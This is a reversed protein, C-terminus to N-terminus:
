ERWFSVGATGHRGRCMGEGGTCRPLAETQVWKLCRDPAWPPGWPWLFHCTICHLPAQTLSCKAPGELVLTPGPFIMGWNRMQTMLHRKRQTHKTWPADGEEPTSPPCLSTCVWACWGDRSVWSQKSNKQFFFSFLKLPQFYGGHVM